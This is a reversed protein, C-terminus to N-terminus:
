NANVRAGFAATPNKWVGLKDESDVRSVWGEAEVTPEVGARGRAGVEALLPPDFAKLAKHQAPTM